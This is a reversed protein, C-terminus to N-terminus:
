AVNLESSMEVGGSLTQYVVCYRETLQVLKELQEQPATSTLNFKLRIRQFGIATERDVGLTGRFDMDGEATISADTIEISMATAVAALTVGACGVLAELLMDGSCAMSGDGGAKPHLGAEVPGAHTKLGCVLRGVDLTGTSSMTVQASEPNEKYEVKIPQQLTRLEDANM